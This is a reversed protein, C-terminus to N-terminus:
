EKRFGYKILSVDEEVHLRLPNDLGFTCVYCLDSLLEEKFEDSEADWKGFLEKIEDLTMKKYGYSVPVLGSKAMDDVRRLSAKKNINSFEEPQCDANFTEFCWHHIM